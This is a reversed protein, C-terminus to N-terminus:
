SKYLVQKFEKVPHSFIMEQTFGNELTLVYRHVKPTDFTVTYVEDEVEINKKEVTNTVPQEPTKYKCQCHVKGELIRSELYSKVNGCHDCKCVWKPREPTSCTDFRVVTVKNVKKGVLEYKRM